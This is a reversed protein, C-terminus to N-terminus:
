QEERGSEAMGAQDESSQYTLDSERDSIITMGNLVILSM